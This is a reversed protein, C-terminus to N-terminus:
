LALYSAGRADRSAPLEHGTGRQGRELAGVGDDGGKAAMYGWGPYTTDTAFGYVIDPRGNDSPGPQAVAWRCGQASQGNTEQTIKRVLHAFVKERGGAPVM